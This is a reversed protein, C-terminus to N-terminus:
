KCKRDNSSTVRFRRTERAPIANINLTQSTSSAHKCRSNSHAPPLQDPARARSFHRGPSRPFRRAVVFSGRKNPARNGSFMVPPAHPADRVPLFPFQERGAVPVARYHGIKESDTIPSRARTKLQSERAVDTPRFNLKPHHFHPHFHFDPLAAFLLRLLWPPFRYTFSAKM